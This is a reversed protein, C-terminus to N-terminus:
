FPDSRWSTRMVASACCYTPRRRCTASTPHAPALDPPPTLGMERLGTGSHCCDLFVELLVGEPVGKFISNLTDDTIYSGDWDMDHPCILEDLHDTLEEDGDRDRIQSGHGSFHFILYDGAKAGQVLWKLRHLINDKTARSDTLVRIERTQFGFLSRLSFHMDLVDNVCGRLDNVQKYDNIGVLLAKKAMKKEKAPNITSEENFQISCFTLM